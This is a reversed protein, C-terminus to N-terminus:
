PKAELAAQLEKNKLLTRIEQVDIAWGMATGLGAAANEPGRTCVGLLEGRENVLPGGPQATTFFVQTAVARAKREHPKIALQQDTQDTRWKQAGVSVVLELRYSWMERNDFVTYVSILTQRPKAGTRALKIAEAGEPLKELQVVALDRTADRLLVKASIAKGANIDNEYTTSDNVLKGGEFKPFAVNIKVDGEPLADYITLVLRREKDVLVGSRHRQETGGDDRAVSAGLWVTSKLVGYFVKDTQPTKQTLAPQAFAGAPLLTVLLVSLRFPRCLPSRLVACEGPPANSASETLGVARRVAVPTPHASGVMGYLAWQM